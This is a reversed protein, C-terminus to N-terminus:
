AAKPIGLEALVLWTMFEQLASPQQARLRYHTRGEVGISEIIRRRFLKRLHYAVTMPAIDAVVCLTPLSAGTRGVLLRLMLMRRFNSFSTFVNWVPGLPGQRPDGHRLSRTRRAFPKAPTHAPLAPIMRPLEDRLRDLLRARLSGTHVRRITYFKSRSKKWYRVLRLRLLTKLHNTVTTPHLGLAEALLSPRTRGDLPAHTRADTSRQHRLLIALIRLRAPSALARLLMDLDTM